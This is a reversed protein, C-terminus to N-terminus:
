LRLLKAANDWAIKRKDAPSIPANELFARGRGGAVDTVFPDDVSYLIRDAGMTLLAHLLMPESMMGSPTLHFNERFTQAFPRELHAVKSLLDARELYFTLTEGWHGLVVQLTPLRDFLGSLIMRQANIATEYHWGYSSTAFARDVQEGFGEYETRRVVAPPSQPHVYVPVGLDVAAEFIPRFEPADLYRDRTRGNLMAGKFGFENVCRKFEDVAAAPDPTPLTAFGLLRDPFRRVAEALVDNAERALPVAQAAPLSQTAPTTVSLVAVDIGSDDMRRLRKEGLDFLKAEVEEQSGDASPDRLDDPLARNADRIAPTIYHEELAVIKMKEPM